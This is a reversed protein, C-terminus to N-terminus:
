ARKRRLLLGFVVTALLGLSAPEPVSSLLQSPLLAENSIRVEDIDGDFYDNDAAEVNGIGLGPNDNLDLTAFPRVSTSTTAVLDGNEYLDMVGTANDLTGAVETWRNVADFPVAVSVQDDSADAIEFTLDGNRILLKYPDTGNRTDGRFIIVEGDTPSGSISHVSLPDIYAELTLSQTLALDSDDPIFVSQSTGNFSMSLSDAAGTGPITATPVNNSYVPGNVATGNNGNGSSDLITGTGMAATNAAGEEFRWYAVTAAQASGVAFSFVGVFGFAQFLRSM